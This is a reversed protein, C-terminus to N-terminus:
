FTKRRTMRFPCHLKTLRRALIMRAALRGMEPFDTSVTTLGGLVLENMGYENYSIIRVDKGIDMGKENIKRALDVLGADLQSNLLLFTDGTLIEEPSGTLFEVAVHKDRAFYEIGRRIRAGYLSTPLTIVRLQEFNGGDGLGQSLGGYIDSAFDQYVAGFPGNLGEPLHDILILKRAPIRKIQARMREQTLADLPFHPAVVYWDFSDLYTDLYYGLLDVSQNHNVITIEAAPGLADSFANFMEQKYVSFRDFIVLVQMHSRSSLDAVYFGKGQKPIIIGREVLFGYAKKVTEKSIDLEAALENMSPLQTGAPLSGDRVSREVPITIQKYLPTKSAPDISLPIM